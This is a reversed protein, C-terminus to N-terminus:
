LKKKWILATKKCTPPMKRTVITYTPRCKASSSFMLHHKGPINLFLLSRFSNRKGHSTNVRMKKGKGRKGWWCKDMSIQVIQRIKLSIESVGFLGNWNVRGRSRTRCFTSARWARWASYRGSMFPTSIRPCLSLRRSPLRPRTSSTPTARPTSSTPSIPPLCAANTTNSPLSSFTPPTPPTTRWWRPTSSSSHRSFPNIFSSITKKITPFDHWWSEVASSLMVKDPNGSLSHSYCM